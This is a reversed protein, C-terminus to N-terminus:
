HYGGGGWLSVWSACFYLERVYSLARRRHSDGAVPAMAYFVKSIGNLLGSDIHFSMQLPVTSLEFIESKPYECRSKEFRPTNIIIDLYKVSRFFYHFARNLLKQNYQLAVLFM